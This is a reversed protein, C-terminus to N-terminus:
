GAVVPSEAVPPIPITPEPRAFGLAKDLTEDWEEHPKSQAVIGAGVPYELTGDTCIKNQACLTATRIGVNFCAHGSDSVFGISGCYAGRSRQELEDIIQMARIKPAGTISGAPFCARLLSAISEDERVQGSITSVAQWVGCRGDTDSDGHHEIDRHSEVRISGPACVRGLDNRMLDVIMALEAADKESQQLENPDVTAPRTGKIPRTTVSRTSADYQLFLEPSCSLVATGPSSEIYAGYWPQMAELQQAALARWSGTVGGRLTHSLNVQYVDGAGIYALAREVGARYRAGGTDSRLPAMAADSCSSKDADLAFDPAKKTRHWRNHKHDFVLAGECRHLVMVSDDIKAKLATPEFLKGLEYRLEVIWGSTFPPVDEANQLTTDFLSLAQSISDIDGPISLTEVPQALISWRAWRPHYRGSCLAVVPKDSPWCRLLQTPTLDDLRSM